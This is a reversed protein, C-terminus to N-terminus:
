GCPSHTLCNHGREFDQAQEGREDDDQQRVESVPIRLRPHVIVVVSGGAAFAPRKGTILRKITRRRPFVGTKLCPIFACMQEQPKRPNPYLLPQPYICRVGVWAEPSHLASLMLSEIVI